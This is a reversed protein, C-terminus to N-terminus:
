GVTKGFRSEAVPFYCIMLGCAALAMLGILVFVLISPEASEQRLPFAWLVIGILPLNLWGLFGLDGAFAVLRQWFGAYALSREANFAAAVDEQSGLREIVQAPTEGLKMGEDFHARLDAEFRSRETPTAYLDQLVSHIYRETQSM